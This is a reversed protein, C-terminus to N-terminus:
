KFIKGFRRAFLAPNFCYCLHTIVTRTAIRVTTPDVLLPNHQHAGFAILHFVKVGM